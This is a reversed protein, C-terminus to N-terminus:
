RQGGAIGRKLRYEISCSFPNELVIGILMQKFDKFENGRSYLESEDFHNVPHTIQHRGVDGSLDGAMRRTSQAGTM